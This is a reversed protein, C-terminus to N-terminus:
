NQPIEGQVEILTFSSNGIHIYHFAGGSIYSPSPKHDIAVRKRYKMDKCYALQREQLELVIDDLDREKVLHHLYLKKFEDYMTRELASSRGNPPYEYSVFFIREM